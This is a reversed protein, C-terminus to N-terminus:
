SKEPPSFCFSRSAFATNLFAGTSISSSGSGSKVGNGFVFEVQFVVFKCFSFYRKENGVPEGGGAKTVPYEKDRVSFNCFASCMFLQHSSFSFIVSHVPKLAVIVSLLPHTIFLRFIAILDSLSICRRSFLSKGQVAALATVAANRGNM